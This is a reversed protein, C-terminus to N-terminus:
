ATLHLQFGIAKKIDTQVPLSVRDRPFVSQIPFGSTDILFANDNNEKCM